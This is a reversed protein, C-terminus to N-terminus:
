EIDLNLLNVSCYKIFHAQGSASSIEGSTSPPLKKTIECRSTLTKFLIFFQM